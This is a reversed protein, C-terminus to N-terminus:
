IDVPESVSTPPRGDTAATVRAASALLAEAYRPVVWARLGSPLLVYRVASDTRLAEYLAHPDQIFEEGLELPTRDVTGTEAM